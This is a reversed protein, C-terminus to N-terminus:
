KKIFKDLLKNININSVVKEVTRLPMYGMIGIKLIGFIEHIISGQPMETMLTDPAYGFFYMGVLVTFFAMVLPRWMRTLWSDSNAEASVVAAVAKERQSASLNANDLVEIGKKIAEVKSEQIGFFGKVGQGILSLGATIVGLM